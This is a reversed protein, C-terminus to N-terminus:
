ARYAPCVRVQRDEPALPQGWLYCLHEDDQNDKVLPSVPSHPEASARATVGSATAVLPELPSPLEVSAGADVETPGALPRPRRLEIFGVAAFGGFGAPGLLLGLSPKGEAFLLAAVFIAVSGVALGCAILTLAWLMFRSRLPGMELPCAECQHPMKGDLRSKEGFKVVRDSGCRPCYLKMITVAGVGGDRFIASL